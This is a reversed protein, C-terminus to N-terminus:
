SKWFNYSDSINPMNELLVWYQVQKGATISNEYSGLVFPTEKIFIDSLDIYAYSFIDKFEWM